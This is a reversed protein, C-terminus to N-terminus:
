PSIHGCLLGSIGRLRQERTNRQEPQIAKSHQRLAPSAEPGRCALSRMLTHSNSCMSRHGHVSRVTFSVVATDAKLAIQLLVSRM